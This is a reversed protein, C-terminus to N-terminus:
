TKEILSEEACFNVSLCGNHLSIYNAESQLATELTESHETLLENNSLNDLSVLDIHILNKNHFNFSTLCQKLISSVRFISLRKGLNNCMNVFNIKNRCKSDCLDLFCQLKSNFNMVKHYMKDVSVVCSLFILNTNECDSIVKKILNMRPYKGAALDNSGCGVIVFDDKGFGRTLESLNQIAQTFLANSKVFSQIQFNDGLNRQLSKNLNNVTQDGLIFIKRVTTSVKKGNKLGSCVNNDEPPLDTSVDIFLSARGDSCERSLGRLRSIEIYYAHNEAELTRISAVMSRNLDEMEGFDQELSNIKESKSLIENQLTDTLNKFEILKEHFDDVDTQISHTRTKVKTQTNVSNQHVRPTQTEANVLVVNQLVNLLESQEEAQKQLEGIKLRCTRLEALLNAEMETANEEFVVSKRNLRKIHEDKHRIEERCDKLLKQLTDVVSVEEADAKDQCDESCLILNQELVQVNGGRKLCSPHFINKCVACIWNNNVKNKCCKFTLSM